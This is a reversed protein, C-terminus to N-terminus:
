YKINGEFSNWLEFAEERLVQECHITRNNMEKSIEEYIFHDDFNTNTVENAGTAIIKGDKM